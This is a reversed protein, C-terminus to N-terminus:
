FKHDCNNQEYDTSETELNAYKVGTQLIIKASRILAFVPTIGGM